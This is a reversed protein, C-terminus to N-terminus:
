CLTTHGPIFLYNCLPYFFSHQHVILLPIVQFACPNELSSKNKSDVFQRFIGSLKKLRAPISTGWFEDVQDKIPVINPQPCSNRFVGSSHKVVLRNKYQFLTGRQNYQISTSLRWFLM